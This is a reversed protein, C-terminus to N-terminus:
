SKTVPSKDGSYLENARAEHSHINKTKNKKLGTKIKFNSEQDTSKGSAYNSHLVLM